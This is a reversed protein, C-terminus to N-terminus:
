LLRVREGALTAHFRDLQLGGLPEGDDVHRFRCGGAGTLRQDADVADADAPRVHRAVEALHREEGVRADGAVFEADLHQGGAVTDGV